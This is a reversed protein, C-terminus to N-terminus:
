VTRENRKFVHYVHELVIGDVAAELACYLCPVALEINLALGEGNECLLVRGVDIPRTNTGLVDDLGSTNEGGDVLACIDVKRKGYYNNLGNM